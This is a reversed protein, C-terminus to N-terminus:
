RRSDFSREVDALVGDRVRRLGDAERAYALTKVPVESVLRAVFELQRKLRDTDSPYHAATHALLARFAQAPPLPRIVPELTTGGDADGLVYLAALPETGDSVREPDLLFILKDTVANMPIGDADADFIGAAIERYLKIRPPGPQALWGPVGPTLVLMDDTVLRAGAQVFAAALTSKGDGSHGLFAVVGHNTTVATAHLPEWGLRVMSFSLADVLLYALLAEDDVAALTRAYIQRADPTVLFEFLDTWRRYHSGDPLVASQAWNSSQSEPVFAAASGFTDHNGALFEVDWDGDIVPVGPLPWPTRVRIGYLAHVVPDNAHVSM